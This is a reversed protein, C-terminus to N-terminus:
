KDELEAIKNLVKTLEEIKCILIESDCETLQGFLSHFKLLEARRDRVWKKLSELDSKDTKTM